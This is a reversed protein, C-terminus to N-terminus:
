YGFSAAALPGLPAAVGPGGRARQDRGGHPDAPGAWRAANREEIEDDDALHAAPAATAPWVPAWRAVKREAEAQRAERAVRRAQQHLQALVDRDGGPAVAPERVTAGDGRTGSGDRPVATGSPDDGDGRPTGDDPARHASRDPRPPPPTDRPQPEGGGDGVVDRVVELVDRSIRATTASDDPLPARAAAAVRDALGALEARQADRRHIRLDRQETVAALVAEQEPSRRPQPPVDALVRELGQLDAESDALDRQTARLARYAELQSQLDARRRQLVARHEALAAVPAPVVDARSAPREEWRAQAQALTDLQGNVATLAVTARRAWADAPEGEPVAQVPPPPPPPPPDSSATAAYGGALVGAVGIMALTRRHRPRADGHRGDPSRRAAARAVPGPEGTRSPHPATSRHAVPRLVPGTAEPDASPRPDGGRDDAPEPLWPLGGAATRRQAHVAARRAQRAAARHGAGCYRREPRGSVTEIEV